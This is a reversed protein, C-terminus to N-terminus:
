RRLRQWKRQKRSNVWKGKRDAQRNAMERAKRRKRYVQPLPLLPQIGQLHRESSTDWEMARVARAPSGNGANETCRRFHFSHSSARCTDRAPPVESWRRGRRRLHVEKPTKPVGASTSPTAPHGALTERQPYRVGDGAGEACTFRKRRKRYVQPLPGATQPLKESM